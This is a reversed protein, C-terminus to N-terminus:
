ATVEKCRAVYEVVDARDFRIVRGLKIAPFGLRGASRQNRLTKPALGLLEAAEAFRLLQKTAPSVSPAETQKQKSKQVM